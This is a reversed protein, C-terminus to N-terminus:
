TEIVVPVALAQTSLESLVNFATCFYSFGLSQEALAPLLVSGAHLM